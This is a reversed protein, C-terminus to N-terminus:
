VIQSKLSQSHIYSEFKDFSDTSKLYNVLFSMGRHRFYKFYHDLSGRKVNFRAILIGLFTISVLEATKRLYFHRFKYKVDEELNEKLFEYLRNQEKVDVDNLSEIYKKFNLINLINITRHYLNRELLYEDKTILVKSENENYPRVLAIKNILDIIEKNNKQILSFKSCVNPDPRKKHQTQYTIKLKDINSIVEFYYDNDDDISSGASIRLSANNDIKFDVSIGYRNRSLNETDIPIVNLDLNEILNIHSRQPRYKKDFLQKCLQIIVGIDRNKLNLKVTQRSM